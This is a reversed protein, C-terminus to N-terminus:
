PRWQPNHEAMRVVPADARVEEDGGGGGCASLLIGMLLILQKM